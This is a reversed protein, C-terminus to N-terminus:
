GVVSRKEVVGVAVSDNHAVEVSVTITPEGSRIVGAAFRQNISHLTVIEGNKVEVVRSANGSVARGGGGVDGEGGGVEGRVEGPGNRM